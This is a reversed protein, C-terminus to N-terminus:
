LLGGLALYQSAQKTSFDLRGAPPTVIASAWGPAMLIPEGRETLIPQGDETLLANTLTPPLVIASGVLNAYEQDTRAALTTASAFLPRLTFHLYWRQGSPGIPEAEMDAVSQADGTLARYWVETASSALVSTSSALATTSSARVGLPDGDNNVAIRAFSVADKAADYLSAIATRAAAQSAAELYITITFTEGAERGGGTLFGMELGPAQELDLDISANFAGDEAVVRVDTHSEDSAIFRFNGARSM